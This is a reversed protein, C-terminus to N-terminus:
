RGAGGPAARGQLLQWALRAAVKATRNDQDHLPNLEAIDALRLKGSHIVQEVLAEVVQLPVGLAAPASVGPAVAAPLVDLDITLYVHECDQLLADLRQQAQALHREQLLSDPLVCAQLADARAFLAATNNPMSVGLCAYRWAHGHQACHQAIQDFPTGSNPPRATRLDLHADLNLVLIRGHDAAQDLHQRLGLFSGWAIEHGGGLLVPRAGGALLRTVADAYDQQAAELADGACGVDGADQFQALAHAALNALAQRIAAPGQAAGPRGQNRRVGADCAFGMLVPVPAGAQPPTGQVFPAAVHHMRRTDGTERTDDRGHWPWDAQQPM